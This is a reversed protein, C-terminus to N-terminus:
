KKCVCAIKNSVCNPCVETVYCESYGPNANMCDQSGFNGSPIYNLSNASYYLQETNYCYKSSYEMYLANYKDEWISQSHFFGGLFIAGIILGVALQLITNSNEVFFNHEKGPM